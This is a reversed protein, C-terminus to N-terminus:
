QRSLRRGLMWRYAGAGLATTAAFIGAVSGAGTNVLQTPKSVTTVVPPQNHTFTVQQACATGAGGSVIDAQGEVAFTAVATINFTGEHDYQHTQNLVGAETTANLLASNDGWNVVVSKLSANTQTVTFKNITVKRDESAVISFMQCMASAPPTSPIEEVQVTLVVYVRENWCGWVDGAAAESRIAAGSTVISDPLNVTGAGGLSTQHASGAVYSLKVQKGNCNITANDTVTAANSASITANPKFSSAAGSPLSVKVQTGHAVSPGSGGNNADASAGNHVYVRLQLQQGNTCSGADVPDVFPTTGSTAARGRLFDSEDGYSPVGTFVNFAPVPSAVTQDGNYAIASVGTSTIVLGAVVAALGLSAKKFINLTKM